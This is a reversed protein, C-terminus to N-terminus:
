INLNVEERYKKIPYYEIGYKKIPDYEIDTNVKIKYLKELLKLRFKWMRKSVIKKAHRIITICCYSEKSNSFNEIHMVYPLYSRILHCKSIIEDNLFKTDESSKSQFKRDLFDTKNRIISNCIAFSICM